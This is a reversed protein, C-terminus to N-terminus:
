QWEFQETNDGRKKLAREWFQLYSSNDGDHKDTRGCPVVPGERKLNKHFKINSPTKRCKTLFIWTENFDSFFLTYKVHLAIYM